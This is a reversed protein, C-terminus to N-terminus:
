NLITTYSAFLEMYQKKYVHEEIAKGSQKNEYIDDLFHITIQDNNENANLHYNTIVGTKYIENNYEDFGVRISWFNGKHFIRPTIDEYNITALDKIECKEVIISPILVQIPMNPVNIQISILSEKIERITGITGKSLIRHNPLKYDDILKIRDLLEM